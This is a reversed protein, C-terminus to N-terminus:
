HRKGLLAPFARPFIFAALAALACQWAVAHLHTAPLAIARGELQLAVAFAGFRVFVFAAAGPVLALPMDALWTGALRGAGLGALGTAFTWAAGTTGAMADEAAGALLGFCLGRLSGTRIAYWAVLLAVLPPTGGRVALLPAFSAQVTLALALALAVHWWVPTDPVYAPAATEGPRNATWLARTRAVAAQDRNM